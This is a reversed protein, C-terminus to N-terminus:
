NKIDNNIYNNTYNIAQKVPQTGNETKLFRQYSIFYECIKHCKCTVYGSRGKQTLRINTLEGRQISRDDGILKRSAEGISFSSWTEDWSINSFKVIEVSDLLGWWPASAPERTEESKTSPMLPGYFRFM